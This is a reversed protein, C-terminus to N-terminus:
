FLTHEEGGLPQLPSDSRQVRRGEGEGIGALDGPRKLKLRQIDTVVIKM